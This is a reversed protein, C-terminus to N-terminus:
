HFNKNSSLPFSFIGNEFESKLLNVGAGFRRRYIGLVVGIQYASRHQM